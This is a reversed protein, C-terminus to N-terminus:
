RIYSYYGADYGAMLHGISAFPYGCDQTDPTELLSLRKVLNHYIEAPDLALAEEHSTLHHLAM